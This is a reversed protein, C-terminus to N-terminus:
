GRSRVPAQVLDLGGLRERSRGLDRSMNSPIMSVDDERCKDLDTPGYAIM